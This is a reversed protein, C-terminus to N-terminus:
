LRRCPLGQETTCVHVGCRREQPPRRLGTSSHSPSCDLACSCSRKWSHFHPLCSFPDLAASPQLSSGALKPAPAPGLCSLKLRGHFSLLAAHSPCLSCLCRFPDTFHPDRVLGAQGHAGVCLATGLPYHAPFWVSNMEPLCPRDQTGLGESPHLVEGSLKLRRCTFFSSDTRASMIKTLELM